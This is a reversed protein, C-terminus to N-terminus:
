RFRRRLVWALSLSVVIAVAQGGLIARNLDLAPRWHVGADDVVYVGLPRVMAGFGGGGGSGESEGHPAAAVEATSEGRKGRGPVGSGGASGVGSGSGTGGVVKAVPVLWTGDHEYATGFVRGVSLTDSAARTMAVPDFPTIKAALSGRSPSKESATSEFETSEAM